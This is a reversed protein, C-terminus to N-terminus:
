STQSRMLAVGFWLTWGCMVISSIVWLLNGLGVGFWMGLAWGAFSAIGAVVATLAAWAPTAGEPNRVENAAIVAVALALFSFGNAMGEAFAWWAEFTQMDGSVAANTVVTAESVATIMTWLAGVTVVAWASLTRLSETLHLGSTLVLLGTLAYFSLAAAATWHVISWRMVGDAIKQMQANLDPAIPGHFGLAAIMLFSAIALWAGATKVKRNTHPMIEQAGSSTSREEDNKPLKTDTIEDTHQKSM